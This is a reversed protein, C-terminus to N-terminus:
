VLSPHPSRRPPPYSLHAAPAAPARRRRRVREAFLERARQKRVARQVEQLHAATLLQLQRIPRPVPVPGGAELEAAARLPATDGRGWYAEARREGESAEVKAAAAQPEARVVEHIAAAVKAAAAPPAERVEANAKHVAAAAVDVEREAAASAQRLAEIEKRLPPAAPEEDEEEGAEDTTTTRQEEYTEDFVDKDEEAELDDEDEEDEVWAQRVPPPNSRTQRIAAAAEEVQALLAEEWSRPGTKTRLRAAGKHAPPPGRANALRARNIEALEAVPGPFVTPDTPVTADSPPQLQQRHKTARASIGRPGMPLPPPPKSQRPPPALAADIERRIEERSRGRARPKNATPM